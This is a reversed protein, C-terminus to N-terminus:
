RASLTRAEGSPLDVEAIADNTHVLVAAGDDRLALGTWWAHPLDTEHVDAADAHVLRGNAKMGALGVIRDGVALQAGTVDAVGLAELERWIVRPNKVRKTAIMEEASGSRPKSSPATARSRSATCTSNSAANEASSKAAAPAAPAAM